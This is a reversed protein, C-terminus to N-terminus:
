ASAAWFENKVIGSGKQSDAMATMASLIEILASTIAGQRTKNFLMQAEDRLEAINTLQGEVAVIRAAHESLENESTANLLCLSRHFNYFDKVDEEDMDLIANAFRYNSEEAPETQASEGLAEIFKEWNPINYVSHIQSAASGFRNFVIQLREHEFADLNEALYNAWVLSKSYKDDNLTTLRYENPFLRPVADHPKKGIVMVAPDKTEGSFADQLYRYNASNLAGCNGRNTGISLYLTQFNKVLTEEDAAAFASDFAKKSYRLTYDRTKTRAIGIQFKSLAIKKITNVIQYFKRYGDLKEKYFKLKGSM